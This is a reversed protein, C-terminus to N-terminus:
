RDVWSQCPEEVFLEWGLGLGRPIGLLHLSSTPRGALLVAPILGVLGRGAMRGGWCSAAQSGLGGLFSRREAHRM